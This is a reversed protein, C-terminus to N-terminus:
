TRMSKVPCAVFPCRGNAWMGLDIRGFLALVVSNPFVSKNLPARARFPSSYPFWQHETYSRLGHDSADSFRGSDPGFRLYVSFPEKGYM